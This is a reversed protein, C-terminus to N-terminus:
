TTIPAAISHIPQNPNLAPLPNAASPKAAFAKITVWIAAAAAAKVHAIRSQNLSPLGVITPVLVPATAPNTAMVGAAPNTFTPPASIIPM